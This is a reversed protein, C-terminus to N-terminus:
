YPNFVKGAEGIKHWASYISVTYYISGGIIVGYGLASVGM